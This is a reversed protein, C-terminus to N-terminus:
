VLHCFNNSSVRLWKSKTEYLVPTRRRVSPVYLIEVYADRVLWYANHQPAVIVRYPWICRPRNCRCRSRCPKLRADTAHTASSKVDILGLRNKCGCWQYQPSIVSARSSTSLSSLYLGRIWGGGAGGRHFGRVFGYGLSTGRSFIGRGIESCYSLLLGFPPVSYLLHTYM